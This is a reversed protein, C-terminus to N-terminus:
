GGERAEILLARSWCGVPRTRLGQSDIAAIAAIAAAKKYVPSTLSALFPVLDDIDRASRAVV